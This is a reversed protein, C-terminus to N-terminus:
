GRGYKDLLARTRCFWCAGCHATLGDACSDMVVMERLLDLMAPADAILAMNAVREDEPTDGEGEESSKGHVTAVPMDRPVSWIVGCQCRGEKAGCAVWPGPTPKEDSM